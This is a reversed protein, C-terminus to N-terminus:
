IRALLFQISTDIRFDPKEMPSFPFFPLPHLLFFYFEYSDSAPFPFTRPIIALFYEILTEYRTKLRPFPYKEM